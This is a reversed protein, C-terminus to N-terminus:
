RARVMCLLRSDGHGHIRVVHEFRLADAHLFYKRPPRSLDAHHLHLASRLLPRGTSRLDRCPKDPFEDTRNQIGADRRGRRDIALVVLALVLLPSAVMQEEVFYRLTATRDDTKALRSM